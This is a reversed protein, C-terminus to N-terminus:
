STVTQNLIKKYNQMQEIDREIEQVQPCDGDVCNPNRYTTGDKNQNLATELAKISAGVTEVQNRLQQQQDETLNVCQCSKLAFPVNLYTQINYM